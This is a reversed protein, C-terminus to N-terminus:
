VYCYKIEILFGPTETINNKNGSEKKCEFAIAPVTCKIETANENVLAPFTFNVEKLSIDLNSGNVKYYFASYRSNIIGTCIVQSFNWFEIEMETVM